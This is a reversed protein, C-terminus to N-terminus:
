FRGIPNRASRGLSCPVRSRARSHTDRSLYADVSEGHPYNGGVRFFTAQISKGHSENQPAVTM